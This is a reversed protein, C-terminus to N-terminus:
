RYLRKLNGWTVSRTNVVGEDHCINVVGIGSPDTSQILIGAISPTADATAFGYGLDALGSVIVNDILSGDTRYFGLTASGGNGGVLEFSVASQPVPFYMAISGEGIADLDPYGLPGLGSLVNTTYAFVDLNQGPTGLQLTLPESPIGSVVDFDGGYSVEQGMFREAFQLGGSSVLGDYNTGPTEGGLVDDFTAIQTCPVSHPDVALIMSDVPTVSSAIGGPETTGSGLLPLRDAHVTGSLAFTLASIAALSTLIRVIGQALHM